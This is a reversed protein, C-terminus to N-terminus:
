RAVTPSDAQPKETDWSKKLTGNPNFQKHVGVQVDNEYQGVFAKAIRGPYYFEYPGNKKGNRYTYYGVCKLMGAKGFGKQFEESKDVFYVFEADIQGNLAKGNRDFLMENHKESDGKEDWESYLINQATFAKKHFKFPAKGCERDIYGGKETFVRANEVNEINPEKEGAILASQYFWNSNDPLVALIKYYIGSKNNDTTYSWYFNTAGIQEPPIKNMLQESGPLQVNCASIKRMEPFMKKQDMSNQSFGILINSDMWKDGDSSQIWAGDAAEPSFYKALLKRGTRQEKGAEFIYATVGIALIAMTALGNNVTIFAKLKKVTIYIALAALFGKMWANAASGAEPLNGFFYAALVAGLLIIFTTNKM